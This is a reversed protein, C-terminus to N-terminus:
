QLPTVVIDDFTIWDAKYTKFGVSGTLSYAVAKMTITVIAAAISLWAYRTLPISKEATNKLPKQM